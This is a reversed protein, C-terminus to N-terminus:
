DIFGPAPRSAATSSETFRLVARRWRTAEDYDLKGLSSIGALGRKAHRCERRHNDSHPSSLGICYAAAMMASLRAGALVGAFCGAM